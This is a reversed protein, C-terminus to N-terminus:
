LFPSLSSFYALISFTHALCTDAHLSGSYKYLYKPPVPRNLTFFHGQHRRAYHSVIQKTKASSPFMNYVSQEFAFYPFYWCEYLKNSKNSLYLIQKSYFNIKPSFIQDEM